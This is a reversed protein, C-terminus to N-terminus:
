GREPGTTVPQGAEIWALTGGAVNVADFGRGRLHEAAKQSRGGTRCIVYLTADTPLEDSRAPVDALPVHQAGPVHGDAYEDDERVDLVPAGEERRRALEEVDIQPVEM